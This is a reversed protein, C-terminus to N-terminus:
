RRLETGVDDHVWSSTSRHAGSMTPPASDDIVLQGLLQREMLIRDASHSAWKVAPQHQTPQSRQGYPHVPM